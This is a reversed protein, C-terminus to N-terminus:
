ENQPSESLHRVDNAFRAKAAFVGIANHNARDLAEVFPFFDEVDVGVLADITLRAHRFAWDLGDKVLVVYRFFPLIENLEVGLHGRLTRYDRLLFRRQDLTLGWAASRSRAM